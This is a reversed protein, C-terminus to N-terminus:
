DTGSQTSDANLMRGIDLAASPSPKLLPTSALGNEQVVRLFLTWATQLVLCLDLFLSWHFIYQLDFHVKEESSHQERLGHVQALGTLGPKVTLRQRQWMSYHKVREPAEPRPGVLSMDGKLVNLLQPLETLSFQVLFREYGELGQEDRDINLRYMWFSVENSGCRLEKKFVRGRHQRVVVASAMLLPAGLILLCAAGLFDMTRKLQLGTVPLTQEELSLLPVDEIETLRAKSLYLEYHQPVVKVSLGAKRCSSVLQEIERGPPVPEALIIEQVNKEQMLDLVNLTRISVTDPGLDFEETSPEADYPFLVGVIDMSLEPHRAIKIMLERVIRGSGIIVVRRKTRMHAASKVLWCALCRIAVFGIPWMCGLYLVASLSYYHQALVGFALVSGLLYVVGVIVQAVVTPLYWGRCFGELDKSFYLATWISVAVLVTSIPISPPLGATSSAPNSRLFHVLGFSIVIWLLDAGLILKRLMRNMAEDEAAKLDRLEQWHGSADRSSGTGPM